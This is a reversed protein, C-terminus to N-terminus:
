ALIYMQCDSILPPETPIPTIARSRSPVEACPIQCTSRQLNHAPQAGNEANPSRDHERNLAVLAGPRTVTITPPPRSLRGARALLRADHGCRIQDVERRQDVIGLAEGQHALMAPRLPHATGGAAATGHDPVAKVLGLGCRCRYRQLAARPAEVVEGARHQGPM